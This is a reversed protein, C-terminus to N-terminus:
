NGFKFCENEYDVEDFDNNHSSVLNCWNKAQIHVGCSKPFMEKVDEKAHKFSQRIVHKFRRM